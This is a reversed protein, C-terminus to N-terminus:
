TGLTRYRRYLFRDGRLEHDASILQLTVQQPLKGRHTEIGDERLTGLVEDMTLGVGM